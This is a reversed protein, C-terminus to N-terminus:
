WWRLLNDSNAWSPVEISVWDNVDVGVVVDSGDLESCRTRDYDDVTDLFLVVCDAVLDVMVVVAGHQDVFDMDVWSKWDWM